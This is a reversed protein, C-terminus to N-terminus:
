NSKKFALYFYYAIVFLISLMYAVVSVGGLGKSNGLAYQITTYSIYALFQMTIAIFFRMMKSILQYQKSANEKTIKIPINYLHPRKNLYNILLYTGLGIFSLLWIIDKSGFGDAEGKLNFHIPITEPLQSYYYSPILFLLTLSIIGIAEVVLDTKDKKTKM